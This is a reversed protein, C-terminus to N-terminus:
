GASGHLEVRALPAQGGNRKEKMAELEHLARYLVRELHAEYRQLKQVEADSLMVAHAQEETLLLRARDGLEHLREGNRRMEAGVRYATLRPENVVDDHKAYEDEYLRWLGPLEPAEWTWDGDEYGEAAEPSYGDGLVAKCVTEASVGWATLTRALARALADCSEPDLGLLVEDTVEVKPPEDKRYSYFATLKEGGRILMDAYLATDAWDRLLQDPEGFALRKLEQFTESLSLSSVVRTSVNGNDNLSAILRALGDLQFLAGEWAKRHRQTLVASEWAELRTLRWLTLSVREALREELYGEPELSAIVAAQHLRYADLEAPLVSKSQIGHRVSNLASIGKGAKTKPGGGKTRKTTKITALESM